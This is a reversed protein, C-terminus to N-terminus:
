AGTKRRKAKEVKPSSKSGGGAKPTKSSGDNKKPADPKAKIALASKIKQFVADSVPCPWEGLIRNDWLVKLSQRAAAGKEVDAIDPLQLITVAGWQIISRNAQAMAENAKEVETTVQCWIYKFIPDINSIFLGLEAVAKQVQGAYAESSSDKFPVM